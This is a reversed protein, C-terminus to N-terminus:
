SNLVVTAKNYAVRFIGTSIKVVTEKGDKDQYIVSGGPTLLSILSSHGRCVVFNGTPSEVKIWAVNIQQAQTPRIIHLEFLNLDM